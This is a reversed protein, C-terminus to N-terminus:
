GELSTGCNPCFRAGRPTAQGCSNCGAANAMAHDVVVPEGGSIVEMQEMIQLTQRKLSSRLSMYDEESVKGMAFEFDLDALNAVLVERRTGLRGMPTDEDSFEWRVRTGQFAPWMVFTIVAASFLLLFITM